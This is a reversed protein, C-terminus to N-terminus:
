PQERLTLRVALVGTAAMLLAALLAVWKGGIFHGFGMHTAVSLARSFWSERGPGLYDISLRGKLPKTPVGTPVKPTLHRGKLVVATERAGAPEGFIQLLESNPVFAVCLKVNSTAQDVAKVPITATSGSWDPSRSGETIVRGDHFATVQLNSGIFAVISVRIATVGAPLIENGQCITLETQTVGLSFRATNASARLVRPPSHTLVIAGVVLTLATGIALTVKVSSM